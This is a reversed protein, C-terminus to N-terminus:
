GGKKRGPHREADARRLNARVQRGKSAADHQAKDAAIAVQLEETESEYEARLAAIKAEIVKKNREHVRVKREVERMASVAGDREQEEETARASGTLVGGPGLYVDVLEIGKDSLLVERIQNSHAMGRSKLIYLGRNREGNVEITQLFIWTDILSSIEDNTTEIANGNHVLDTLVTTVDITKLYDFLRTLMSKVEVATGTAKMNSIPDIVVVRPKFEAILAHSTLLHMELGHLSPRAAHFLLTGKKSWSALDIGISNMNRIIQNQSEEFAFYLCREGRRCCSEVFKAAFSTKGSGATGSILITSGRYYGKEELMTDLRPIGSSVRQTTVVHELGLSTIPLISIGKKDILFPYEDAGHFSGRYKVIRLRRTAIQERVRFDLLIVCDAVYEELGFRTLTKEGSEGTIVATVGRDKFWQFLRRLEARLIGSDSLGGFLNEVTDLVIRKAGISDIAQALRIFLGELDYEGTEEIESRNIYIHDTALLRRATLDKLDFGLTIFNRALDAPTEEFSVFVGPEKYQTAGRILFEMAFVTKGCGADGCVLTPRNRPVGGLSIEDFGKIGTPCKELYRRSAAMQWVETATIAKKSPSLFSCARGLPM